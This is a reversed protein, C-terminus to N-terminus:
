VRNSSGQYHERYHYNVPYSKIRLSCNVYSGHNSLWTQICPSLIHYSKLFQGAKAGNLCTDNYTRPIGNDHISNFSTFFYAKNERLTHLIQKGLHYANTVTHSM